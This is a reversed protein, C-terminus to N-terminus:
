QKQLLIKQHTSLLYLQKWFLESSGSQPPYQLRDFLIKTYTFVYSCEPTNESCTKSKAHFYDLLEYALDISQQESLELSKIKEEFGFPDIAQNFSFYSILPHQQTISTDQTELYLAQCRSSITPLLAGPNNTLLLFYHQAPPEELLKLLKNSTAQTLLEAHALVIYQPEDPIFQVRAFLPELEELTYNKEATLWLLARHQHNKIQQCVRCFCNNYYDKQVSLDELRQVSLDELRQNVQHPCLVKQLLEHAYRDANEGSGVVLQVPHPFYLDHKSNNIYAQM